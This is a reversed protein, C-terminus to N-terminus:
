PVAQTVGVQVFLRDAATGTVTATVTTTGPSPTDPQAAFEVKTGEGDTVGNDLFGTLDKSWRYIASSVDQAPAPNQPHTFTFTNGSRTGPILGPSFKSPDSGFFNELGNGIGDFDADDAFGTRAGVGPYGAIWTAFTNAVAGTYTINLVLDNGVIQPPDATWDPPLTVTFAPTGTIGGAATLLTYAGPSAGGASTITLACGAEFALTRGAGIELKDHGAANTSLNFELKGNNKVTTNRGISGTGGLTCNANVVLTGAADALSGNVFLKGANNVVTNGTYTNNAGGLILVGNGNKTLTGTGTALDGSITTHGNGSLTLNRNTGTVGGVTLVGATNNNTITRNGNPTMIGLTLSDSGGFLFDGNFAVPNTTVVTGVASITPSAGFGGNITFTGTGLANDDGIELLCSPQNVAVGSTGTAGMIRLIAGGPVTTAGSYDNDAALVVRGQVLLANAGTLANANGM